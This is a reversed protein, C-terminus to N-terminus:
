ALGLEKLARRISRYLNQALTNPRKELIASIESRDMGHCLMALMEGAQIDGRMKMNAILADFFQRREIEKQFDWRGGPMLGSLAARDARQVIADLASEAEPLPQDVSRRARWGGVRLDEVNWKAQHWLRSTPWFGLDDGHKYWVAHVASETLESVRWVDALRQRALHRLRNAIPLLATFWGWAIRRGERDTDDICIPVVSSPDELKGYNFPITVISM